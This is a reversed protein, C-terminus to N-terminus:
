LEGSRTVRSIKAAEGDQARCPLWGVGRADETSRGRAGCTGRHGKGAPSPETTEATRASGTSGVTM